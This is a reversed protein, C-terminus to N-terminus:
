LPSERPPMIQPPLQGEAFPNDRRLDPERYPFMLACLGACNLFAVLPWGFGPFWPYGLLNLSALIAALFLCAFGTSKRAMAACWALLFLAVFILFCGVLFGVGIMLAWAFQGGNGAARALAAVVACLTTVFFM